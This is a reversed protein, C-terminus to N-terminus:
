TETNVVSILYSHPCYLLGLFFKKGSVVNGEVQNILKYKGVRLSIKKSKVTM